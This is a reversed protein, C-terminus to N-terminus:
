RSPGDRAKASVRKLAGRFMALSADGGVKAQEGDTDLTLIKLVVDM